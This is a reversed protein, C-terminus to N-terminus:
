PCNNLIYAYGYGQRQPTMVVIRMWRPNPSDGKGVMWERSITQSGAETFDMYKIGSENEDSQNWFYEFKHPGNTTITAYVTYLVNTPCGIAPDRVVEYTISTIGFKPKEKSSVVVEVYFPESYPGAGFTADWPTQFQWYGTFTGETDPAKLYISIDKQEGPLVEEPLPYSVLGGMLDGSRYVLEYSPDWACTGSNMFTWTKWFYEGPKLIVGDPPTEAVLTAGICNPDSPASALTPASTPIVAPTASAESNIEPTTTPISVVETLSDRAQVTQAVATSISSQDQSPLGCAAALWAIGILVNLLKYKRPGFM